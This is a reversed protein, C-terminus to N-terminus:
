AHYQKEVTRKIKIFIARWYLRIASENALVAVSVAYMALTVHTAKVRQIASLRFPVKTPLFMSLYQM